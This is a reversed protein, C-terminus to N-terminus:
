IYVLKGTAQSERAADIVKLVQLGDASTCAPVETGAIVGLFHKAEALFMDNREQAFREESWQYHPKLAQSIANPDASWLITGNEGVFRISKEHPRTFLDLHINIQLGDYIMLIDVNDDSDIELTSLNGIQAVVARPMGFFWLMLDLWHSEDLLAGGGLEKSAMFFNRYDEWPHWDALHAALSCRVHLVRGLTGEDILRRVVQLPVWWRWTYGLLVPVDKQELVQKLRMASVSDTSLPKELLIPLGRQITQIAQDVHFAPPSSIVVGDLDTAHELCEDLSQYTGRLAGVEQSLDELRDSRPDVGSLACGLEAFNRAHRQGVSGSGVVAVHRPTSM